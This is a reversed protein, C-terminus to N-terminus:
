QTNRGSAVETSQALERWAEVVAKLYGMGSAMLAMVRTRIFSEHECPRKKHEGCHVCKVWDKEVM